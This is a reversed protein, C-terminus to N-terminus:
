IGSSNEQYLKTAGWDNKTAGWDNASCFKANSLEATFNILPPACFAGGKIFKM